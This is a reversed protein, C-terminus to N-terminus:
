DTQDTFAPDPQLEPQLGLFAFIVARTRSACIGTQPLGNEAQIRKVFAKTQSGFYGTVNFTAGMRRLAAQLWKVDDGASGASLTRQPVPYKLLCYANPDANHYAPIGYGRITADTLLHKRLKVSKSINGEISFVYENEVYLVLGVHNWNNGSVSFDYFILDGCKPLYQGAPRFSVNFHAPNSGPRAYASNNIVGTPVLAQRASWSIFFACWPTYFPWGGHVCMGYWYGYETYDGSGSLNMGNLESANDGEHYGCQSIGVNCVDLRSNGTLALEDLNEYYVGSQYEPTPEYVISTMPAEGAKSFPISLLAALMILAASVLRKKM